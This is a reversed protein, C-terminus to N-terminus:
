RPGHLNFIESVQGILFTFFDFHINIVIRPYNECHDVTKDAHKMSIDAHNTKFTM